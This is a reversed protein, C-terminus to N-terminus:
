PLVEFLALFIVITGVLGILWVVFRITSWGILYVIAHAVRLARGERRHRDANERRVHELTRCLAEHGSGGQRTKERARACAFVVDDWSVERGGITAHFTM